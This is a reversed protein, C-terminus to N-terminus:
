DDCLSRMYRREAEYVDVVNQEWQEYDHQTIRGKGHCVDCKTLYPEEMLSKYRMGGCDPCEVLGNGSQAETDVVKADHVM